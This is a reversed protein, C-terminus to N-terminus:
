FRLNELDSIRSQLLSSNDSFFDNLGPCCEDAFDDDFMLEAISPVDDRIEIIANIKNELEQFKLLWSIMNGVRHYMEVPVEDVSNYSKLEDKIRKLLGELIIHFSEKAMGVEPDRETGDLIKEFDYNLRKKFELFAAFERAAQKGIIRGAFNGISDIPVEKGRVKRMKLEISLREWTRPCPFMKGAEDMDSSEVRVCVDPSFNLFAIIDESIGTAHAYPRFDRKYDYSVDYATFRSITMDDLRVFNTCDPGNGAGVVIWHEPLTYEGLSRSDDALGLAPQIQMEDATTIEDLFLVGYEGDKTPDPLGSDQVRIAKNSNHDLLPIGTLSGVVTQGLLIKKFGLKKSEPLKKNLEKICSIIGCTKGIGPKGVVLLPKRIDELTLGFEEYPVLGTLLALKGEVDDFFETLTSKPLNLDEVDNNTRGMKELVGKM